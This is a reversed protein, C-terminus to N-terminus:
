AEIEQRLHDLMEHLHAAASEIARYRYQEARAEAVLVACRHVNEFDAYPFRHRTKTGEPMEENVGLFWTGYRRIGHAAIYADQQRPSPRHRNWADRGDLVVRGMDILHVAHQLARRNLRVTM